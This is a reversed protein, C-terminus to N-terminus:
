HPNITKYHSHSQHSEEEDSVELHQVDGGDGEGDSDEEPHGPLVPEPTEDQVDDSTFVYLKIKEQLM